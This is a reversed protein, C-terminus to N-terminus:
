NTFSQYISNLENFHKDCLDNYLNTKKGCVGGSPYKYQCSGSSYSSSPNSNYSSSSKSRSSLCSMCYMADEDIYCNCNLCRASHYTCCNTDGTTAIYSNCGTHVCRTTTTGYKNTFSTYNSQTKQNEPSTEHSFENNSEIIVLEGIEEIMATQETSFAVMYDTLAEVRMKKSVDVACTKTYNGLEILKAFASKLEPTLNKTPYNEIKDCLDYLDKKATNFESYDSLTIMEKNLLDPQSILINLIANSFDILGYIYDDCQEMVTIQEDTTMDYSIEAEDNTQKMSVNDNDCAPLSFLIISSVFLALIKKM